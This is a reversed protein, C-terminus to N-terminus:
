SVQTWAGDIYAKILKSTTDVWLTTTNTPASEQIVLPTSNGTHLVPYETIAGDVVDRIKLANAVNSANAHNIVMLARQNDTDKASDLATIQTHNNDSRLRGFGNYLWLDNRSLTGGSLPLFVTSWDSSWASNNTERRLINEGNITGFQWIEAQIYKDTRAKLGYGWDTRPLDSFGAVYASVFKIGKASVSLLWELLTDCGSTKNNVMGFDHAFDSARYGDVTDANAVECKLKEVELNLPAFLTAISGLELKVWEITINDLYSRFYLQEASTYFLSLAATGDDKGFFVLGGPLYGGATFTKSYVEGNAKVSVTFKEGRKKTLVDDFTQKSAVISNYWATGRNLVIGNEDLMLTSTSNIGEYIWRNFANQQGGNGSWEIKGSTNVPNRFDSNILLNPNSSFEEATLGNLKTSNGTPTTGTIIDNIVTAVVKNKVGKESSIDLTDDLNSPMEDSIFEKLTDELNDGNESTICKILTRPYVIYEEENSDKARLTEIRAQM